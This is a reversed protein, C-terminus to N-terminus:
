HVINKQAKHFGTIVPSTHSLNLRLKEKMLIYLFVPGYYLYRKWMRKPEKCLRVFWELGLNIWVNAPREITGAYFDFVAGISCILKANIKNKQQSAWKEQKPATMGVFLVDPKFSNIKEIILANDEDSFVETFPPSFYECTINPFEINLREKIKRLTNESSGMYFCKGSNKDLEAILHQHMDTGSIKKIVEGTTTKVALVIGIGDPLLVDSNQLAKKFDRDEEAICFSYQNITNILVKPLAPLKNLNGNFLDYGMYNCQLTNMM